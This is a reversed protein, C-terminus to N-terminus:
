AAGDEPASSELARIADDLARRGRDTFSTAFAPEFNRESIFEDFLSRVDTSGTEIRREGPTILIDGRTFVQLWWCFGQAERRLIAEAERKVPRLTNRLEVRAMADSPVFKALRDLVIDAIERASRNEGDVPAITKMPRAELPIHTVEAGASLGGLEVIAYGPDVDEDGFGMRETSGSYWANHRVKQHVHYHGLAIYDFEEDLLHDAVDEEGPERQGGKLQLGHVLGHTVLINRREPVPYASPGLPDTLKGHPVATVALDFQDLLLTEQDYGCVFQVDPLALELVSFVSGSTRLRPTDHNGGIVITPIGAESLRRTQRVFCRLSSWAPRTHHFVDGGHIVLQVDRTLIDSIATEYAHEIDVARQNRGSAPDAKFFARYGLHTDSIHAFRLTPM